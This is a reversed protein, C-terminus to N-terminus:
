RDHTVDIVGGVPHAPTTAATVAPNFIRLRDALLESRWRGVEGLRWNSAPKDREIEPKSHRVLVLRRSSPGAIM